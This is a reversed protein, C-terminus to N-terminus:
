IIKIKRQIIKCSTLIKLIIQNKIRGQKYGQVSWPLRMGLGEAIALQLHSMDLPQQVEAAKFAANLAVM